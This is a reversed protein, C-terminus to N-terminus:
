HNDSIPGPHPFLGVDLKGFGPILRPLEARIVLKQDELTAAYREATRVSVGLFVALQDCTKGPMERIYRLADAQRDQKEQTPTVKGPPDVEILVASDGTPVLEFHLDTFPEADRQKDCRVRVHREERSVEIMTDAAARLASSGREGEGNKGTHHIVLVTCNLHKRIYDCGLVFFGMQDADNESGRYCRALTDIAVVSPTEALAEMARGFEAVEGMHTFNVADNLTYLPYRANEGHMAEWAMMRKSFGHGSDANVYVAAGGLMPEGCFPTEKVMSLIGSMTFFTKCSDSKGYVVALSGKAIRNGWQWVPPEQQRLEERSLFQFRPREEVPQSILPPRPENVRPKAEQHGNKGHTELDVARRLGTIVERIHCGCEAFAEFSGRGNQTFLINRTPSNCIPCLVAFKGPGLSSAGGLEDIQLVLGENVTM